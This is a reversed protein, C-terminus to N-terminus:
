LSTFCLSGVWIWCFSCSMDGCALLARFNFSITTESKVSKQFLCVLEKENVDMTELLVVDRKEAMMETYITVTSSRGIGSGPMNSIQLFQIDNWPTM